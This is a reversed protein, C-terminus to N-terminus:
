PLYIRKQSAKLVGTDALIRIFRTFEKLDVGTQQFRSWIAKGTPLEPPNAHLLDQKIIRSILDLSIGNRELLATMKSAVIHPFRRPDTANVGSKSLTGTNSSLLGLEVALAIAGDISRNSTKKVIEDTDKDRYYYAFNTPARSHIYNALRTIDQHKGMKAYDLVVQLKRYASREGPM